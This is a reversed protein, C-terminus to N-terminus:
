GSVQLEPKDRSSCETCQSDQNGYELLKGLIGARTGVGMKIMVIRLFSKVTNPSIKMRQAMEKASLGVAIGHLAQQERDSLHYEAALAELANVISADRQLYVAITPEIRTGNQQHIVFSRCMYDQDGISIRAKASGADGNRQNALMDLINKPLDVKEGKRNAQGCTTQNLISLAGEDAAVVHMSTDVVLLGAEVASPVKTANRTAKPPVSRNHILDRRVLPTTKM